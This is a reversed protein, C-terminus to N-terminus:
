EWCHGLFASFFGLGLGDPSPSKDLHMQFVARHVEEASVPRLLRANEEPKLHSTICDLFEDMECQSDTFLNTFYDLVVEGMEETSDVMVGDDRRLKKIRNRHRRSKVTNNFYKTNLDGENYWHEKARQKWYIHQQNLLSLLEKEISTYENLGRDDHRMRLHELCTKCLDIKRQFEKNYSKGWRWLNIGCAEIRGLVNIGTTRNRSNTIIEM